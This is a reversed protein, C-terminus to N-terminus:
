PTMSLAANCAALLQSSNDPDIDGGAGDLLGMAWEAAAEARAPSPDEMFKSCPDDADDFGEFQAITPAKEFGEFTEATPAQEFGEFTEATPAQQFGEFSAITPAAEITPAASITPAREFTPAARFEHSDEVVFDDCSMLIAAM